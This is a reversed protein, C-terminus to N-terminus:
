VVGHVRDRECVFGGDAGEYLEGEGDADDRAESWAYADREGRAGGERGVRKGEDVTEVVRGGVRGGLVVGVGCEEADEFGEEGEGARAEASGDEVEGRAVLDKDREEGSVDGIEDSAVDM